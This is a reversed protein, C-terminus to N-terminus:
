AAFAGDFISQVVGHAPSPLPHRAQLAGIKDQFEELIEPQVAKMSLLTEALLIRTTVNQPNRMCLEINGDVINRSGNLFDARVGEKNGCRVAL